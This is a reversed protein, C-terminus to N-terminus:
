PWLGEAKAQARLQGIEANLKLVEKVAPNETIDQGTVAGAIQAVTMSLERLMRHTIPNADEIAKIKELPNLPPPVDAPEPTNGDALWALYEQWDANTHDEPINAGDSRLVTTSNTLKYTM